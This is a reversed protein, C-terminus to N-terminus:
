NRNFNVKKLFKINIDHITKYYKMEDKEKIIM